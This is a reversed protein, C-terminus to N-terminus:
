RTERSRRRRLAGFLLLAFFLSCLPRPSAGSQLSACQMLKIPARDAIVNVPTVLGDVYTAIVRTQFKINDVRKRYRDLASSGGTKVIERKALPIIGQIAALRDGTTGPLEYRVKKEEKLFEKLVVLRGRKPEYGADGGRRLADEYDFVVGFHDNELLKNQEKSATLEEKDVQNTMRYHEKIMVRLLASDSSYTMVNDIVAAGVLLKDGGLINGKLDFEVEALKGTAEFDADTASMEAILGAATKFQVTKEQLVTRIKQADATRISDLNREVRSTAAIWGFVGGIFAVVLGLVVVPTSFTRGKELGFQASLDADMVPVSGGESRANRAPQAKRVPTSRPPASVPPRGPVPRSAMPGPARPGPREAVGPSGAASMDGSAPSAGAGNAPAAAPTQVPSAGARPPGASAAKPPPEKILGLKAKLDSLGPDKKSPAL